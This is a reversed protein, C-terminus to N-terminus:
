AACASAPRCVQCAPLRAGAAEAMSRFALRHATPSGAPTAAPRCASSRPRTRASTASAPRRWGSWRRRPRPGRSRLITRKNEPGGLSYQGISATPGSSAIARCSSRCRTTASRRGSPGSRRRAASRPPSGATRGSRAARSRSRRTWVDREFDTHGRLDLDIRVRRDGDLRRAIATPWAIPCRARRPHAPRGTRACTPRRSRRRRRPRGGRDVRRARELGRRAARDALRDPRLPRGPRGRRPREAALSAPATRRSAPWHGVGHDRDDTTM